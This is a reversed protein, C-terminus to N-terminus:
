EAEALSLAPLRARGWPKLLLSPDPKALEAPIARKFLFQPGIGSPMELITQLRPEQTTVALVLFNPIGWHTRPVGTAIAQRYGDLKGLLSTQRADSRTLPMTGRDVELAFFRYTKGRETTYELGFLGDPIIVNTGDRRSFQLTQSRAADPARALIEPWPIFRLGPKKLTALELSALCECILLAHPFQRHATASLFTWPEMPGHESLTLRAHKGIEYVAPAYRAQAFEWQREPRDLFSEHFLDGLREKFRTQSAGGAFAHLYTSRLYRYRALARFITFDRPTLAIRKGTSTRQSRSRRLGM